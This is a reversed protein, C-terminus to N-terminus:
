PSHSHSHPGCIKRYTYYFLEGIVIHLQCMSVNQRIQETSCKVFCALTTQSNKRTMGKRVIQYVSLISLM